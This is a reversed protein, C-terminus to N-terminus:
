RVTSGSQKTMETQLERILHLTMTKQEGEMVRVEDLLQQIRRNLKEIRMKRLCDEAAAFADEASIEPPQNFLEGILSRKEDSDAQAMIAAPSTGSLLLDVIEKLGEHEFDSAQIFNDPLTGGALLAALTFEPPSFSPQSGPKRRKNAALAEMDVSIGRKTAKLQAMLVDKAIGTKLAIKGLYYDTEVPDTLKGLMQCAEKAFARQQEEVGLDFGSELRNLRFTMAPLSKVARFADVGHRRILEDPDEGGPLPLVRAMVGEQDFLDLARQIAMQGAEDGDYAILIEPAFGKMLRIQEVTLSTGLTAVANNIGSQSLAVVDMYGEVLILRDLHREGKLLSIGYVLSRKNFVPSEQTNLYKPQATGLARAGFGVPQGYRNFIPFMVRDRFQDYRNTEKVTILGAQRMEEETFGRDLLHNLLRDWEDPSAGIGFRRVVADDLGRAHLYELAKNGADTWLTEHYYKAAERNAEVLRDRIGRRREAEPDEAMAPPPPVHFRQALNLLADPYTLKEMEMVFQAINGSAKCGFCHYLNLEANVSFSATKENHFPCLGWYNRGKKQLPLYTKVVEVLNSRAYVQDVWASPFRPAM